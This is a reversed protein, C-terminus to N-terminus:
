YGAPSAAVSSPSCTASKLLPLQLLRSFTSSTCNGPTKQHNFLSTHSSSFLQKLHLNKTYGSPQFSFYSYVLFFAQPTTEPHERTIPFRVSLLRSLNSSTCNRPRKQHNFLFSFFPLFICTRYPYIYHGRQSKVGEM